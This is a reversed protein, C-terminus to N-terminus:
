IWNKNSQKLLIQTNVSVWLIQLIYLLTQKTSQLTVRHVIARLAKILQERMYRAELDLKYTVLLLMEFGFRVTGKFFCGSNELEIVTSM